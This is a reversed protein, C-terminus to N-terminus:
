HRGRYLEDHLVDAKADAVAARHRVSELREFLERTHQREEQIRAAHENLNRAVIAMLLAPIVIAFVVLTRLQEVENELRDVRNSRVSVTHTSTKM